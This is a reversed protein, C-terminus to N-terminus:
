PCIQEDVLTEIQEYNKKEPILIGFLFGLGFLLVFTQQRIRAVQVLQESSDDSALHISNDYM